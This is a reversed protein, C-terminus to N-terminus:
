QKRPERIKESNFRVDGKEADEFTESAVVDCALIIKHRIEKACSTCSFKHLIENDACFKLATLIGEIPM